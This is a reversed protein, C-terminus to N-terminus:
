GASNGLFEIELPNDAQISVIFDLNLYNFAQQDPFSPHAQFILSVLVDSTGDETGWDSLGRIAYEGTMEIREPFFTDDLEGSSSGDELEETAAGQLVNLLEDWRASLLRRWEEEIGNQREVDSLEFTKVLRVNLTSLVSARQHDRGLLARGSSTSTNWELMVVYRQYIYPREQQTTERLCFETEVISIGPQNPHKELHQRGIFYTGHVDESFYRTLQLTAVQEPEFMAWYVTDEVQRLLAPMQQELRDLEVPNM